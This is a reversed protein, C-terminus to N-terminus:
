CATQFNAWGSYTQTAGTLNTWAVYMNGNYLYTQVGQPAASGPLNAIFSGNLYGEGNDPYWAYASGGAVVSLNVTVVYNCLPVQTASASPAAV